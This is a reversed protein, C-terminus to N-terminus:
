KSGKGNSRELWKPDDRQIKESVACRIFEAYEGRAINRSMYLRQDEPLKISIPQM